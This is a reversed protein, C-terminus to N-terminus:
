VSKKTKEWGLPFCTKRNYSLYVDTFIYRSVNQRVIVNM